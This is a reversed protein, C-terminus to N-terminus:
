CVTEGSHFAYFRFLENNVRFNNRVRIGQIWRLVGPVTSESMIVGSSGNGQSIPTSEKQLCCVSAGEELATLVAPVGATGAGVVVIDYTKEDVYSAIPDLEAASEAFEAATTFSPYTVSKEDM